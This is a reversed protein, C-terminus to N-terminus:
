FSALMVFGSAMLVASGIFIATEFPTMIWTNRM